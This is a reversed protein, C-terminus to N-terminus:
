PVLQKLATIYLAKFSSPMEEPLYEVREDETDMWVTRIFEYAWRPLAPMRVNATM